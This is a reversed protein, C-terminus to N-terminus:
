TKNNQVIDEEEVNFINSNIFFFFVIQHWDSQLTHRSYQVM